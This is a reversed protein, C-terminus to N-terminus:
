RQAQSKTPTLYESKFDGLLTDVHEKVVRGLFHVKINHDISQPKAYYVRSSRSLTESPDNMNICISHKDMTPENLVPQPKKGFAYVIAHANRETPPLNKNIGKLGYSTVPVGISFGKRQSIIIFRKVHSYIAECPGSCLTIWGPGSRGPQPAQPLQKLSPTLTGFNEHWFVAVLSGVGFVKDIDRAGIYVRYKENLSAQTAQPLKNEVFPDLGLRGPTQSKINPSATGYASNTYHSRYTEEHAGDGQLLKDSQSSESQAKPLFDQKKSRTAITSSTMSRDQPERPAYHPGLSKVPNQFPPNGEEDDRDDEDGEDGEDGEGGEGDEDGEDGENQEEAKSEVKAKLHDLLTETKNRVDERKGHNFKLSELYQLWNNPLRLCVHLLVHRHAVRLAIDDRGRRLSEEAAEQLLNLDESLIKPNDVCYRHISAYKNVEFSIFDILMPSLQRRPRNASPLQTPQISDTQSAQAQLM